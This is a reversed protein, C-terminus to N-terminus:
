VFCCGWKEKVDQIIKATREFVQPDADAMRGQLFTRLQEVNNPDMQKLM